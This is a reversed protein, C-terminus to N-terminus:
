LNIEKTRKASGGVWTGPELPITEICKKLDPIFGLDDLVHQEGIARVSVLRGDSNVIADGHMQECLYIGFSNHLIARHRMDPVMAKTQDFWNHIFIYDDWRGGFRQVSRHSHQLPKM